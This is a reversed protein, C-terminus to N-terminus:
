LLFSFMKRSFTKMWDGRKAKQYKEAFDECYECREYRIWEPKHEQRVYNDYSGVALMSM